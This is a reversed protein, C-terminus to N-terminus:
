STQRVLRDNKKKETRYKYAVAAAAWFEWAYWLSFSFMLKCSCTFLILYITRWSEDKCFFLMRIADAAIYAIAIVGIVGFSVLLELFLNHSYGAVHIPAVFPRDGFLGYGFPGGERIADIVANWIRDRGNAASFTGNMLMEISRSSINQKKLFGLLLALIDDFFFCYIGVLLVLGSILVTKKLVTTKRDLISIIVLLAIFLVLIVIAGRGGNTIILLACTLALAYYQIKKSKIGETLFVMLPFLMDYGFSLSYRVHMEEGNPAIDIWYGRNMAPLFVVIVQFLLLVCATKTLVKKLKNADNFLSFLLFAFIAGDPRFVPAIGYDKRFYFKSLRPNLLLSLLFVLIVLFFLFFFTLVWKPMTKNTGILSTFLYVFPICTIIFLIGERAHGETLGVRAMAFRAAALFLSMCLWLFLATSEKDPTKVSLKTKLSLHGM